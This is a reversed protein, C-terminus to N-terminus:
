DDSLTNMLMKFARFKELAKNEADRLEEVELVATEMRERLTNLRAGFEETLKNMRAGFEDNLTDMEQSVESLAELAVNAATPEANTKVIANMPVEKVAVPEPKLEPEVAKVPEAKIASQEAKHMFDKSLVGGIKMGFDKEFEAALEEPAPAPPVYPVAIRRLAKMDVFDGLKPPQAVEIVPERLERIKVQERQFVDRKVEKILGRDKLGGLAARVRKYEASTKGSSQMHRNIQDAAWSEQIPVFEFVKAELSNCGALLSAQRTESISM